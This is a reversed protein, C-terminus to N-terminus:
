YDGKVYWTDINLEHHDIISNLRIWYKYDSEKKLILLVGAKKNTQMSYNLSQGIAEGWKSGWDVEIAHTETVIDCRTGDTMTVEIQGGQAKGWKNQYYAENKKTDTKSRFSDQLSSNSNTQSGGGHFHYEGNAKNTHGGKSDTRGPHAFIFAPFFLLLLFKM